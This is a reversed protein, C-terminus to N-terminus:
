GERVALYEQLGQRLVVSSRIKFGAFLQTVSAPVWHATSYSAGPTPRRIFHKCDIVTYEGPVPRCEAGVPFFALIHADPRCLNALTPVLIEAGGGGLQAIIDWALILDFRAQESPLLM